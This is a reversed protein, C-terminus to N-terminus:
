GPVRQFVIAKVEPELQVALSEIDGKLNTSFSMRTSLNLWKSDLRFIDYHHHKLPFTTSNFTGKLQEDASEVSLLGYGPNEFNGTYANLPHSPHTDPVRDSESEEKLKKEATELAAIEERLRDNWPLEDLGLLRDCANFIVIRPVPTISMNSLVVLGIRHQPLLTTLASFGDIGGSHEVLTHGRYSAVVWGLAYNTHSIEKHRALEPAVIQPTHMQALQGESILQADGHKGRNLHLLLWRSMDTVTSVIAGAPAIAQTEAYFPIEKVKGKEEQYPLAYDDGQQSLDVSFNSSTMGLRDFLRQQVVDEWSQGAIQGVLYGAAMYMLNQYQFAGRFDKSPELYQLRDFLEQRTRSSRYWVFDHSPLGSRHTVLDRPTMRETAFADYMRFTPLYKRVPADWELKGEDALMGMVMTTFAKTCSGIAFRTQPTMKLDHVVDRLGFGRSFIVEGNKVIAMALGPVKWDRM